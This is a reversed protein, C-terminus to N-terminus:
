KKMERIRKRIRSLSVPTIGLYTALVHQPFRQLLDPQAAILKLYREEPKDLVFSAVVKQANVFREELLKRMFVQTKPLEEYLKELKMKPLVLLECPEVTELVQVSPSEALFSELASLFLGETFLFGSVEEGDDTLYYLRVCGKNLFCIERCVEGYEVLRYQSPVERYVFAEIFQREEKPQWAVYRRMTQQLLDFM